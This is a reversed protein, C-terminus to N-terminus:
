SLPLLPIKKKLNLKQFANNNVQFDKAVLASIVPFAKMLWEMKMKIKSAILVIGWVSSIHGM